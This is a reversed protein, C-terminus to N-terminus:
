MNVVTSDSSLKLKLQLVNKAILRGSEVGNEISTRMHNGAYLQALSAEKAYSTFNKYPRKGLAQAYTEDEFTYEEGFRNALIEATVGAMTAPLSTYEPSSDDKEINTWRPDITQRIYTVPRMFDTDYKSKMCAITADHLAIGMQLNLIVMDDMKLGEKRAINNLVALNHGASTFSMEGDKWFNMIDKQEGNLTKVLGYVEQAGKFYASSQEFSFPVKVSPMSEINSKIFARLSGWKPLIPKTQTSTPMWSAAGGNRTYENPFNNNYAEHGGDKKSFEWISNAIAAGFRISREIEDEDVGAKLKVETQRRLTDIRSKMVDSTTGYIERLLTYQAANASLAWNYDKGNEPKPLKELGQIQGELSKYGVLGYVTSEYLALNVYAITRAAVPASYGPTAQILKIQLSNWDSVITGAYTSVSKSKGFSLNGEQTENEELPDIEDGPKCSIISIFALIIFFYNRKQRMITHLINTNGLEVTTFLEFIKGFIM